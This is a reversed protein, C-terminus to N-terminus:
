GAVLQVRKQKCTEWYEDSQQISCHHESVDTYLCFLATLLHSIHTKAASCTQLMVASMSEHKVSEFVGTDHSCQQLSSVRASPHVLDHFIRGPHQVYFKDVLVLYVKDGMIGKRVAICASLCIIHIVKYTAPVQRSLQATPAHSAVDTQLGFLEEHVSLRATEIYM